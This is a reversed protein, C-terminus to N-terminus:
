LQRRSKFAAFRKLRSCPDCLRWQNRQQGIVVTAANKCGAGSRRRRSLTPDWECRFQGRQALKVVPSRSGIDDSPSGSPPMPALGAAERLTAVARHFSPTRLTPPLDALDVLAARMAGVLAAERERQQREWPLEPVEYVTM